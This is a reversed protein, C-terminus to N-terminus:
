SRLLFLGSTNGVPPWSVDMNCMWCCVVTKLSRIKGSVPLNNLDYQTNEMNDARHELSQNAELLGLWSSWGPAQWHWLSGGPLTPEARGQLAQLDGQRESTHRRGWAGGVRGSRLSDRECKYEHCVDTCRHINVVLKESWTIKFYITNQCCSHGRTKSGTTCKLQPHISILHKAGIQDIQHFLPKEFLM